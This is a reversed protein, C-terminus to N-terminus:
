GTKPNNQINVYIYYIDLMYTANYLHESYIYIVYIRIQDYFKKCIHKM